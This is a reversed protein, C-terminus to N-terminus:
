GGVRVVVKGFHAGSKLYEYAQPADRFDFVRDIIPRMKSQVLARNMNEYMARSAVYIGQLRISKQLISVPNVGTEFGTLVGILSVTGGHRVSRLSKELTGAGGV